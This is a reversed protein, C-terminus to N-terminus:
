RPTDLSGSDSLADADAAARALAELVTAGKADPDYDEREKGQKETRWFIDCGGEVVEIVVSGEWGPSDMIRRLYGDLTDTIASDSM